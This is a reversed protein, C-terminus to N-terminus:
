CELDVTYTFFDGRVTSYCYEVVVSGNHTVRDIRMVPDYPELQLLKAELGGLSAARFTERARVPAVGLMRMTNYLGNEAVSDATMNKFLSKPIYSAEVAYPVDNVSRLRTIKYVPANAAPQELKAAVDETAPLEEFALVEAVENIGQSRLSESFSYFKSLKNDIHEVRVFTGKGRRRVLHGSLVLDEVAKRITIRSVDYMECLAMETPIRQGTKWERSSIRALMDEHIQEYLPTM